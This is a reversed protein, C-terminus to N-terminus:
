YLNVKKYITRSDLTTFTLLEYVIHGLYWIDTTKDIYSSPDTLPWVPGPNRTECEPAYYKLTGCYKYKNNTEQIFGFDIFKIRKTERNIMINEAKLDLHLFNFEKNGGSQIYDLGRLLQMTINIVDKFHKRKNVLIAAQLDGRLQKVQDASASILIKSKEKYWEKLECYGILSEIKGYVGLPSLRHIDPIPIHQKGFYTGLNNLFVKNPDNTNKQKFSYLGYDDVDCIYVSRIDNNSCLIRQIHLGLLEANMDKVYPYQKNFGFFGLNQKTPDQQENRKTEVKWNWQSPTVNDSNIIRLFIDNKLLRFISNNIIYVCNFGGEGLKKNNPIYKIDYATRICRNVPITKTKDNLNDPVFADDNGYKILKDNVDGEKSKYLKSYAYLQLTSM